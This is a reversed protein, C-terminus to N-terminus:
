QLAQAARDVAEWADGVASEIAGILVALREDIRQTGAQEVFVDVVSTAMQLASPVVSPSSNLPTYTV